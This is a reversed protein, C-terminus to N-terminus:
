LASSVYTGHCLLKKNSISIGIKSWTFLYKRGILRFRFCLILQKWKVTRKPILVIIDKEWCLILIVGFYLLQNYKFKQSHIRLRSTVNFLIGEIRTSSVYFDGFCMRAFNVITQLRMTQWRKENTLTTFFRKIRRLIDWNRKHQCRFRLIEVHNSYLRERTYADSCLNCLLTGNICNM